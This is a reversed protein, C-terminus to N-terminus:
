LMGFNLTLTFLGVLNLISFLLAPSCAGQNVTEINSSIISRLHKYIGAIQDAIAVKQDHSLIPWVNEPTEGDMRKQLVFYRGNQDVWDHTKRLAFLYGVCKQIGILISLIGLSDIDFGKKGFM